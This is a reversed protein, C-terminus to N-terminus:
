AREKVEVPKGLVYYYLLGTAAAYMLLFYIGIIVFVLVAMVLSAGIIGWVKLSHGKTENWSAKLAGWADLDKDVLFYPALILRPLVFFFPIVLAFLSLVMAIGTLINLGIMNIVLTPDVKRFAESFGLKKGKISSLIVDVAVIGAIGSMIFNLLMNVFLKTSSRDAAAVRDQGTLSDVVIAVLIYVVLLSIITGLNNMVATKSYKFLGFAGPWERSKSTVTTEGAAM